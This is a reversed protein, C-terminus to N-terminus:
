AGFVAARDLDHQSLPEGREARAMYDGLGPCHSISRKKILVIDGMPLFQFPTVPEWDSKRPQWVKLEEDEVVSMYIMAETNEQIYTPPKVAIKLIDPEIPTSM